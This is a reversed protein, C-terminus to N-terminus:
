AESARVHRTLAKQMALLSAPIYAVITALNALYMAGQMDIAGSKGLFYAAIRVLFGAALCYLAARWVFSWWVPVAQGIKWGV